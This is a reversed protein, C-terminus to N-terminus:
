WCIDSVQEAEGFQKNYYDVVRKFKDKVAPHQIMEENTTYSIHKNNCWSRLDIFNPVILAAAFKQNEGVIM